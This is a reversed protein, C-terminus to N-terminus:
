QNDFWIIGSPGIEAQLTTLGLTAESTMTVPGVIRSAPHATILVTTDTAGPAPFTYVGNANIVTLNDASYEDVPFAVSRFTIGEFDGGGGGLMEPKMFYVKASSAFAAIDIRVADLNSTDAATSFISIGVIVAIGVVIAVLIILLLQQQGM